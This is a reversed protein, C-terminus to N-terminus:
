AGKGAVDFALAIKDSAKAIQESLEKVNVGFLAKRASKDTEVRFVRGDMIALNVLEGSKPSASRVRVRVNEPLRDVNECPREVLLRVDVNRDVASSIASIVASDWVDESLKNSVAYFTKVSHKAMEELIIRAHAPEENPVVQSLNEEIAFRVLDRYVKLPDVANVDQRDKEDSM